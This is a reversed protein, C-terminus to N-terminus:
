VTTDLLALLIFYNEDCSVTKELTEADDEIITVKYFDTGTIRTIYSDVWMSYTKWGTLEMATEYAQASNSAMVTMEEIKSHSDERFMVTYQKM